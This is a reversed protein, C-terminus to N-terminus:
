LTLLAQRILPATPVIVVRDRQAAPLRSRKTHIGLISDSAMLLDIASTEATLKQLSNGSFIGHTVAAIVKKAGNQKLVTAGNILTGGTDTMDDLEIATCDAVNGKFGIVETTNVDKHRKTIFFMDREPSMDPGFALTAIQRAKAQASDQPKDGGDPAGYVCREMGAIAAVKRQIEDVASIFHVNETGFSDAYFNEAAQSHVDFTTIRDAGACKLHKPFTKGMMSTMRKDFKRDQRAYPAFALVFHVSQASYEKATEILNIAEVFTKDMDAAANMVIHVHSGTIEAKNREFEAQQKPYLECYHENSRFRGISAPLINYGLESVTQNLERQVSKPYKGAFLVLNTTDKM